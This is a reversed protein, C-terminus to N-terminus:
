KVNKYEPSVGLFSHALAAIFAMDYNVTLRASQGYEAGLVKCLGCYFARFLAYDKFYMNPKDPLIYGYM